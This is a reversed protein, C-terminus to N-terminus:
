RWEQYAGRLIAVGRGIRWLGLILVTAAGLLRWASTPHWILWGALAILAIGLAINVLAGLVFQASLTLAFVDLLHGAVPLELWDALVYLGLLLLPGFFVAFALAALLFDATM